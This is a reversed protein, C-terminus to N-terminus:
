LYSETGPVKQNRWLTHTWSSIGRGVFIIARCCIHNSIRRRFIMSIYGGTKPMTKEIYYSGQLVEKVQVKSIPVEKVELRFYQAAIGSAKGWLRDMVPEWDTPMAFRVHSASVSVMLNSFGIPRLKRWGM